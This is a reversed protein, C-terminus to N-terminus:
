HYGEGENELFAELQGVSEEHSCSPVHLGLEHGWDCGHGWGCGHGVATGCLIGSDGVEVYV